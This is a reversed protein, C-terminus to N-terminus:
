HKSVRNNSKLLLFYSIIFFVLDIGYITFGNEYISRLILYVLSVISFNCLYDTSDFIKYVFLSIFIEKVILFYILILIFFCVIGGSLYSYLLANSSNNELVKFNKILKNKELYEGILKRDAQYGYGLIIKNDKIINISNIWIELRGSDKKDTSLRSVYKGDIENKEKEINNETKRSNNRSNYNKNLLIEFTFAPVIFVFIVITLKKLIKEKFFFLYYFIIIPIGVLAGRAQTGYLLMSVVFLLLYVTYKRLNNFKDRIFFLFFTLLLLIRGLGTSRISAQNFDRTEPIISESYYLYHIINNQIFNNFIKYIFYLAILSIFILSTYFFVKFLINLEKIFSIYIVLLLNISCIGLQYDGIELDKRVITTIILQWVNFLILLILLINKKKKLNFFL